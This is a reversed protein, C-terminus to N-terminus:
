LDHGTDHIRWIRLIVQPINPVVHRNVARKLCISQDITEPFLEGQQGLPVGQAPGSGFEGFTTAAEREASVAEVKALCFVADFHQTDQMRRTVNLLDPKQLLEDLNRALFTPGRHSNSVWAVITVQHVWAQM